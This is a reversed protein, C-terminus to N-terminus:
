FKVFDDATFVSFILDRLKYNNASFASTQAAITAAPVDMLTDVIDTKGLAWNWVRAVGCTAIAPDAAMTAGLATLDSVPKGFRWAFTEGAPLYDTDLALKDDGMPTPVSLGPTFKGTGDYHAFMPAIHNITQHCNVCLVSSTDQFNVRGGNSTGAISELPWAGTYPSAAGIDQPANGIEVPFKLCDFTENVWKVRRFAFNGFYQVMVGPNTLVGVQTGGNSCEAATFAGTTADFTPCNNSARTFLDTYPKNNVALDAAFVPATDLMATEGMKFTDRWFAVMQTAFAPRALYATVLAEYAVKKAALDPASAISNIETM